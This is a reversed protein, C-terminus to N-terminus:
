REREKDCISNWRTVHCTCNKRENQHHHQLFFLFNHISGARDSIKQKILPVDTIYYFHARSTALHHWVLSFIRTTRSGNLKEGNKDRSRRWLMCCQETASESRWILPRPPLPPRMFNNINPGKSRLRYPAEGPDAVATVRKDWRSQLSPYKEGLLLAVHVLCPHKERFKFEVELPTWDVAPLPEPEPVSPSWLPPRPAM